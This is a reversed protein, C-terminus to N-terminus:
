FGESRSAESLSEMLLGIIKTERISKQRGRTKYNLDEIAKLVKERRKHSVGPKENVVLSVTSLSVGAAAAVDRMTAVKDVRIESNDTM